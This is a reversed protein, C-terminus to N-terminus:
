NRILNLLTCIEDLQQRENMISQESDLKRQEAEMM